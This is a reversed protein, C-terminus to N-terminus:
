LDFLKKGLNRSLSNKQNNQYDYNVSMKRTPRLINDPDVYDLEIVISCWLGVLQHMNVNTVANPLALVLGEHEPEFLGASFM